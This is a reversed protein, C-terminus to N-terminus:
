KQSVTSGKTYLHKEEYKNRRFLLYVLMLLALVALGTWIHFGGGTILMGLQYTIL